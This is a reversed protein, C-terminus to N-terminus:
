RNVYTPSPVSMYYRKTRLYREVTTTTTPAVRTIAAAATPEYEALEKSM